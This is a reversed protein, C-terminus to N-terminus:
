NPRGPHGPGLDSPDTRVHVVAPGETSLAWKLAPELEEPRTLSRGPVGFGSALALFDIGEMDCGPYVRRELAAGKYDVLAAVVAAYSQNDLIVVTVPLKQRAATWLAHIGFLAAGDGVVAVVRKDPLAMQTGIAMGIGWGLSGGDYYFYRGPGAQSWYQKVYPSARVAEDVVIAQDSLVENLAAVVRAPAIPIRDWRARLFSEAEKRAKAASALTKGKRNMSASIRSRTQGKLSDRLSSLASFLDGAVGVEACVNKDIEAPDDDFHVVRMGSGILPGLPDNVVMRYGTILVLDTDAMIERLSHLDWGLVGCVQPHKAPFGVPSAYIPAGLHEAVEALPKWADNLSLGPGALILPNEAHALLGAAKEISDPAAAILRDQSPRYGDPSFQVEGELIDKPLSLFVPGRPSFRAISFARRLVVPLEAANTLERSWKVVPRAMAVTDGALPPDQVLLRQPQQGAMIVMPTRDRLANYVSSLANATGPAAHINVVAPRGTARAYGDAMAVVASEHLGLVYELDSHEVLADLFPTETSGPNGFIFRAGEARLIEVIVHRAALRGM